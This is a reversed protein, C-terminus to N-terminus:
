TVPTILIRDGEDIVTFNHADLVSYFLRRVGERDLAQRSMVTIRGSVRPDLVVTTGLIGSIEEVIDRLEANNMALQWKEQAARVTGPLALSALIVLLFMSRLAQVGVFSNM